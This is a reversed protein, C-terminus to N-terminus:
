SQPGASDKIHEGASHSNASLQNLKAILISIERTEPMVTRLSVYKLSSFKLYFTIHALMFLM